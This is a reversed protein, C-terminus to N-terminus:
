LKTFTDATFNWKLDSTGVHFFDERLGTYSGGATQITLYTIGWTTRSDGDPHTYGAPAKVCSIVYGTYKYTNDASEYTFTKGDGSFVWTKVSNGFASSDIFTNERLGAEVPIADMFYTGDVGDKGDTPNSCSALLGAVMCVFLLVTKKNRKMRLEEKYTKPAVSNVGFGAVGLGAV